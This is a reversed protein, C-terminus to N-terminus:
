RENPIRMPMLNIGTVYRQLDVRGLHADRHRHGVGTIHAAAGERSVGV